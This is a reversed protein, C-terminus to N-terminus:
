IMKDRSFNALKVSFTIDYVKDFYEEYLDTYMSITIETRKRRRSSLQFSLKEKTGRRLTQPCHHYIDTVEEYLVFSNRNTTNRKISLSSYSINNNKRPIPSFSRKYNQHVLIDAEFFLNM